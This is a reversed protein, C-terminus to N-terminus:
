GMVIAEGKVFASRGFGMHCANAEINGRERVFCRREEETGDRRGKEEGLYM